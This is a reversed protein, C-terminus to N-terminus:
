KIKYTLNKDWTSKVNNNSSRLNTISKARKWYGGNHSTHDYSIYDRKKHHKFIKQAHSFEGNVIEYGLKEAIRDKDM